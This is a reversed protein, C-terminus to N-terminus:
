KFSKSSHICNQISNTYRPPQLSNSKLSFKCWITILHAMCALTLVTHGCITAFLRPTYTYLGILTEVAPTHPARCNASSAIQVNSASTQNRGHLNHRPGNTSLKDGFSIIPWCALHKMWKNVLEAINNYWRIEGIIMNRIKYIHFRPEM